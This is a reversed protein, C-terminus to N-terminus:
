QRMTMLAVVSAEDPFGTASLSTDTKQFQLLANATGPGYLGDVGGTYYGLRKLREQLARLTARYLTVTQGDASTLTFRESRETLRIPKFTETLQFVAQWFPVTGNRQCYRTLIGALRNLSQDPVIDYTAPVERNYATLYGNLWARYIISLEASSAQDDIYQQCTRHGFGAINFTGNADAAGAVKSAGAGLGGVALSLAVGFVIGKM